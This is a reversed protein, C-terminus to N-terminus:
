NTWPRGRSDIVAVDPPIGFAVLSGLITPKVGSLEVIVGDGLTRRLLTVLLVLQAGPVAPAGALDITLKKIPHLDPDDPDVTMAARVRTVIVSLYRRLERVEDPALRLRFTGQPPNQVDSFSKTM